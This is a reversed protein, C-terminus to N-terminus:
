LRDPNCGPCLSSIADAPLQTSCQQGYFESHNKNKTNSSSSPNDAGDETNLNLFQKKIEDSLNFNIKIKNPDYHEDNVPNQNTNNLAGVSNNTVSHTLVSKKPNHLNSVDWKQNDYNAKTALYLRGPEYAICRDTDFGPLVSSIVYFPFKATNVNAGRSTSGVHDALEGANEIRRIRFRQSPKSTLSLQEGLTGDANVSINMNNNVPSPIIITSNTPDDKAFHVNIIRGDKKSIISKINTHDLQEVGLETGSSNSGSSTGGGYANEIGAQFKEVGIGSFNFIMDIVILLVIIVCVLLLANRIKENM